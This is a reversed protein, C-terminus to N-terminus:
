TPEEAVLSQARALLQLPWDNLLKKQAHPPDRRFTLSREVSKSVGGGSDKACTYGGGGGVGGCVCM